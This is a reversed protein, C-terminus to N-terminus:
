VRVCFIKPSLAVTLDKVFKTEWVFAFKGNSSVTLPEISNEHRLLKGDAADWIQMSCFYFKVKPSGSFSAPRYISQKQNAELKSIDTEICGVIARDEGTFALNAGPNDNIKDGSGSLDIKFIERGTTIEWKRVTKDKSVSAIYRGDHSFAVGLIAGDHGTFRRLERGSAVEWLILVNAFGDGSVIFRNDPSFALAGVYNSHGVQVVLEAKQKSQASVGVLFFHLAFLLFLLKIFKKM